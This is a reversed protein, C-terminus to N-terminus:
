WWELVVGFGYVIGFVGGGVFVVGVVVYVFVVMFMDGSVMGKVVFVLLMGGIVIWLLIELLDM